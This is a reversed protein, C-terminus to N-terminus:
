WGLGDWTPKVFVSRIHAGNAMVLSDDSGYLSMTVLKFGAAEMLNLFGKETPLTLHFQGGFTTKVYDRTHNPLETFVVGGPNMSTYLEALFACTDATHELVHSSMFIDIGGPPLKTKDWPSQIVQVDTAGAALIHTKAMPAYDPDPEFCVMRRDVSAMKAMLFGSACGIEVITKINQPRVKSDELVNNVIFQYQNDIRPDSTSTMKAQDTYSNAYLDSIEAPSLMPYTFFVGSNPCEWVERSCLAKGTDCDKHPRVYHAARDLCGSYADRLCAPCRVCESNDEHASQWEVLSPEVQKSYETESSPQLIYTPRDASTPSVLGVFVLPIMSIM